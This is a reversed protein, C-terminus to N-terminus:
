APQGPQNEPSSQSSLPEIHVVVDSVGPIEHKIKNEIAYSIQHAKKLTTNDALLVHLDIYMDDKRGRTRIKHCQAVGEISMTIKKVTEPELVAQDCLVQSSSHLIEFGAHGIFFVIVVAFITDFIPYGMKIFIFAAIVSLSTLMDARTHLSDSVLIDSNLELGRKHEYRMVLFNIIMTVAMVAFSVLNISPLVPSLFRDFGERLINVCVIFLLLAIGVSAFTEYKKHGYPHDRDRPFSAYWIGILGIINSAGDSFSHYGDATMSQSKVLYGFVIKLIAVLWNLFLIVILIKRINACHNDKM